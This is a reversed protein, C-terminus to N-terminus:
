LSRFVAISAAADEAFNQTSAELSCTECGADELAEVFARYDYTDGAAPYKRKEPEAIHAHQLLGKMSRVQALTDGAYCMHYLDVLLRVDPKNVAAALIAGENVSTIINTDEASLPEIVVTIGYQEAIPAVIDSLFSILQRVATDYPFGEPVKRAGGSGFVVKKVGMAAGRRMGREVYARLAQEDVAEGTVKLSGPLFCNVSLCPIGCRKLEASFLPYKEDNEADALLSFGSEVYDYGLEKAIAIRDVDCGICIGYKM